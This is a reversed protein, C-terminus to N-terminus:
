IRKNVAKLFDNKVKKANQLLVMLETTDYANFERKVGRVGYKEAWAIAADTTKGITKFQSIIARRIANNKPDGILNNLKHILLKVEQDDLDRLSKTRGKTFDHVVSEKTHDGGAKNIRSIATFIPTYKNIPMTILM